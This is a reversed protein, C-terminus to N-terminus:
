RGATGAMFTDEPSQMKLPKTAARPKRAQSELTSTYGPNMPPPAPAAKPVNGMGGAANYAAEGGVSSFEPPMNTPQSPEHIGLHEGIHQTFGEAVHHAIDPPVGHATGLYTKLLAGIQGAVNKLGGAASLGGVAATGATTFDLARTVQDNQTRLFPLYSGGIDNVAIKLPDYPGSQAQSSGPV